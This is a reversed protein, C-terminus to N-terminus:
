RAHFVGHLTSESGTLTFNRVSRHRREEWIEKEDNRFGDSRGVERKVKACNNRIEFDSVSDSFSVISREPGVRDKELHGVRIWATTTLGRAVDLSQEVSRFEDIGSFRGGDVDGIRDIRHWLNGALVCIRRSTARSDSIRLVSAKGNGIKTSSLKGSEGRSLESTKEETGVGTSLILSCGHTLSCRYWDALM